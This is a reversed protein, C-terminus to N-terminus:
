MNRRQYRVKKPSVRLWSACGCLAGPRHESREDDEGDEGDTPPQIPLQGSRRM